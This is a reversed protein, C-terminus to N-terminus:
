SPKTGFIGGHALAVNIIYDNLKKCNPYQSFFMAFLFVAQRSYLNTKTGKNVVVHPSFEKFNDEYCKTLFKIEVELLEFVEDILFQKDNQCLVFKTLKEIM